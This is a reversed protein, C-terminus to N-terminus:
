EGVGPTSSLRRPDGLLVADLDVPPDGASGDTVIRHEDIGLLRLLTQARAAAVAAMPAGRRYRCRDGACGAVVVKRAGREHLELLMGATAEGACRLWVPVLGPGSREVRPGLEDARQRCAVLVVPGAGPQEVPPVLDAPRPPPLDPTAAGTPCAALCLNCGRCAAADIRVRSEPDDPDLVSIAEFGCVDVCRACGRCLEETVRVRAPILEVDHPAVGDLLRGATALDGELAVTTASPARLLQLAAPESDGGPVQLWLHRRGCAPVCIRCEACPGCRLCRQAEARALEPSFALETEAFERGAVSRETAPRLRPAPAPPAEPLGYEAAPERAATRDGAIGGGPDASGTSLFREISEAARHGAAIADIVTAPGTVVDGAAFVGHLGTMLSAPDATLRDGGTLRERVPEPLFGLDAEQGVALLVLDADITAETGPISIPRRRGSADPEGLAVDLCELGRLEGDEVLARVPAKLYRLGVGEARAQEVEEASAPMEQWHRRYVIEVSRAGLRAATRAAEIATSGGGIVVVRGSLPRRDGRNVRRLFALADQINPSESAAGLDLKRGRQAGVAFLVASYGRDLLEVLGLERGIRCGTRIEIGTRCLVDIEHDLVEPPLRYDAIGYRLMGGPEPESEFVTVPFGARALDYAATLGAPGAGIVAVREPREPLVAAPPDAVDLEIDAIFRKLARIAVPQDLEGRRCATECPHHCIRGCIGPLPCRERVVELAKSYRGQAILSVYAKVNVGAPCAQSCPSPRIARIPLPGPALARALLTADDWRLTM